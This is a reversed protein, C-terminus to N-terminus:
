LENILKDVVLQGSRDKIRIRGSSYRTEQHGDPYVTKVTGDPYERRKFEKTHIEKQGNTFEITRDGNPQTKQVTGDEFYCEELGSPHLYKMTGDPFTVEKCGDPFHKEIQNNPFHLMELGDPFTTHTTNSEAYYYVVTDDPKIQKSDGNFFHMSISGDSNVTKSTGNPYTIMQSGDEDIVVAKDLTGPTVTEKFNINHELDQFRVSKKSENNTTHETHSIHSKLAPKTEGSRSPSHLPSVIKDRDEDVSSIDSDAHLVSASVRDNTVITIIDEDDNSVVSLEMSSTESLSTSTEKYDNKDPLVSIEEVGPHGNPLLDTQCSVSIVNADKHKTDTLLQVQCSKHVSKKREKFQLQWQKLREQEMMHLDSQLEKNQGELTEIKLRYRALSAGWRSEKTKMEEHLERLEDRLAEIEEREKKNPKSLLQKQYTEFVKRDKKLKKIEEKKYNEFQEIEEARQKQFDSIEHKLQRLNEERELRLKGIAANERKLRDIEIELQCRKTELEEKLSVTRPSEEKERNVSPIPAVYKESGLAPFLKKILNSTPLSPVVNQQLLEVPHSIVHAENSTSEIQDQGIVQDQILSNLPNIPQDQDSTNIDCHTPSTKGKMPPTSAVVPHGLEEISSTLHSADDSVNSQNCSEWAEEDDFVVPPTTGRLTEDAVKDEEGSSSCKSSLSDQDPTTSHPHAQNIRGVVRMVLSSQSSFSINEAAKELMEFEELDKVEKLNHQQQRVVFSDDSPFRMLLKRDQIYHHKSFLSAKDHDTSLGEAGPPLPESVAESQTDPSSTLKTDVVVSNITTKQPFQSSSKKLHLRKMGFRAIGEGKRLFNKKPQTARNTLDVSNIDEHQVHRDLLDDFNSAQLPKIPRDDYNLLRGKDNCTAQLTAHEAVDDSGSSSSDSIVNSRPVTTSDADDSKRVLEPITDPKSNDM